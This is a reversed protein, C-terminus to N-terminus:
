TGKPPFRINRKICVIFVLSRARHLIIVKDFIRSIIFLINFKPPMFGEGRKCKARKQNEGSLSNRVLKAKTMWAVPLM